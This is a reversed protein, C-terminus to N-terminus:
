AKAQDLASQLSTIYSSSTWTAGSVMNIGASQAAIAAQTLVPVARSNISSSHGDSPSQVVTVGTIKGGSITVQVQFAGWPESVANGTYTGDKYTSSTTTTTTATTAAATATTTTGTTTGGTTATAATAAAAVTNTTDTTAAPTLAVASSTTQFGLVLATGAGTLALATVSKITSARM